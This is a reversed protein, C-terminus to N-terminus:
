CIGSFEESRTSVMSVKVEKRSEGSFEAKEFLFSLTHWSM